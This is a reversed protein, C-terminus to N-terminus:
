NRPWQGACRSYRQARRWAPLFTEGRQLRHDSSCSGRSRTCALNSIRASTQGRVWRNGGRPWPLMGSGARLEGGSAQIGLSYTVCHSRNGGTFGCKRRCPSDAPRRVDSVGPRRASPPRFPSARANTQWNELRLNFEVMPQESSRNRNHGRLAFRCAPLKPAFDVAYARPQAAKLPEWAAGVIGSLPDM